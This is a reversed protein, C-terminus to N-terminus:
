KSPRSRLSLLLQVRASKALLDECNNPRVLQFMLKMQSLSDIAHFQVWTIEM